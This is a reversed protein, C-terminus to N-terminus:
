IRNGYVYCLLLIFTLHFLFLPLDMKVSGYIPSLSSGAECIFCDSQFFTYIGKMMEEQASSAGQAEEKQEQSVLIHWSKEFTKLEHAVVLSFLTFSPLPLLFPLSPLPCSSSPLCFSLSCGSHSFYCVRFLIFEIIRSNIKQQYLFFDHGELASHNSDCKSYKIFPVLFTILCNLTTYKNWNLQIQADAMCHM